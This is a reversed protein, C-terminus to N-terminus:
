LYKEFHIHEEINLEKQKLIKADDAKYGIPIIAAIEQDEPIGLKVKLVEIHQPIFTVGFVDHEALSLLFNEICTWVSALCNLDYISKAMEVKTKPKFTVVVVSPAEIIMKKQKPIADLYMEKMITEENKFLEHLNDLDIDKNLNESDILKLKSELNTLIIFHWDRLHNYSPAKFGNEIAYHIIQWSVEKNKFDRITRRKEIAQKLEM